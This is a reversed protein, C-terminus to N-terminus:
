EELLPKLRRVNGEPVTDSGCHCYDEVTLVDELVVVVVVVVVAAAAAAARGDAAVVM